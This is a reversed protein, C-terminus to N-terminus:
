SVKPFATRHVGALRCYVHALKRVEARIELLKAPHRGVCPHHQFDTRWNCNLGLDLESNMSM